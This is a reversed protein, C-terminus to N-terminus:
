PRYAWLEAHQANRRAGLFLARSSGPVPGDLPPASKPPRLHRWAGTRADLIAGTGCYWGVVLHAVTTSTPYCEGGRLPLDPLRTWRNTRPDYRAADLAYDWAVVTGDVTSVASAQPSLPFPPLVRWRNTNPSYAMGQAHRTTARNGSELHAGYVIMEGAVLAVSAQNPALPSPPLGRWTNSAPNYAAGDRSSAARSADGWILFETGTWAWAAPMRASIPAAAITTWSRSAPDFAAGDGFVRGGPAGYGGWVVLRTGTWTAAAASRGSIPAPPIREWHRSRSDYLAGDDPYTGDRTSGSWVILDRGTWVSVSGTRAFPADVLRTWRGASAASVRETAARAPGQTLLSAAGVLVCLVLWSVSRRMDQHRGRPERRQAIASRRVCATSLDLLWTSVRENLDLRDRGLRGWRSRCWSGARPWLVALRPEPRGPARPDRPRKIAVTALATWNRTERRTAGM